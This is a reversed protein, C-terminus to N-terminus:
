RAKPKRIPLALALTTPVGTTRTRLTLWLRGGHRRVRQPVHRLRLSLVGRAGRPVEVRGSGRVPGHAAFRARAEIMCSSLATPPCAVKIRVHGHVLRLRRTLVRARVAPSILPPQPGSRGPGGGVAPTEPSIDISVSANPGGLGNSVAQVTYEQHTGRPVGDLEFSTVDAGAFGLPGSSSSIRYGTADAGQAPSQWELAVHGPATERASLAQVSGPALAALWGRQVTLTTIATATAGDDALVMVAVPLIGERDYTTTVFPESTATEFTGDGDLDWRYGVILADPAYSGEASFTVPEGPEANTVDQFNVIPRAGATKFVEEVAPVIGATGNVVAGGTDRALPEMFDAVESCGCIDVGFTGVPDIENARRVVDATSIGLIPDPDKGSADTIVVVLKTAGPRWAVGDLALMIGALQAEPTDGGGDASLSDAANAFVDHDNTLGTVLEREPVDFQDRFQVLGIRGNPRDLVEDALDVAAAKAQNIAGSMSGTTDFVVMVDTGATGTGLELNRVTWDHEFRVASVAELAAAPIEEKPYDSHASPLYGSACVPDTWDCWAGFRGKMDDPPDYRFVARAGAEWCKVNGRAWWGRHCLLDRKAVFVPDGFTAAFGIQGRVDSPLLKITKSLVEGGQSYGSLIWEESPCTSHRDVLLAYLEKIGDVVSDEYDQNFYLATKIAGLPISFGKAPYRYGGFGPDGLRYEAIGIGPPTHKRVEGFFTSSESNFRQDDDLTQGSGRAAVLLLDTCGGPVAAQASRPTLGWLALGVLVTLVGIRASRTRWMAALVKVGQGGVLVRKGM